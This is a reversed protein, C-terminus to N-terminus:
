SSSQKAHFHEYWQVCVLLSLLVVMATLLGMLTTLVISELRTEETNAHSYDLLFVCGLMIFCLISKIALHVPIPRM